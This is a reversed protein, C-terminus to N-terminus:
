VCSRIEGTQADYYYAHNQFREEETVEDETIQVMENMSKPDLIESDQILVIEHMTSPLIYFSKGGCIKRLYETHLIKSVGYYRFSNSLIYTNGEQLEKVECPVEGALSAKLLEELEILMVKEKKLNEIATQHLEELSINWMEFLKETVKIAIPYKDGGVRLRIIYVILLDLIKKSVLSELLFWNSETSLLIPYIIGKVSEWEVYTEKFGYATLIRSEEVCNEAIAEVCIEFELDSMFPNYYNRLAIVSAVGTAGAIPQISLADKLVGNDTLYTEVLVDYIGELKKKLKRKLQEVFKKYRM